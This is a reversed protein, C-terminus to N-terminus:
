ERKGEKQKKLGESVKAGLDTEKFFEAFAARVKQPLTRGEKEAQEKEEKKKEETAIRKRRQEPSEGSTSKTFSEVFADTRNPM